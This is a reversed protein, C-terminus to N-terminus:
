KGRGVGLPLHLWCGGTTDDLCWAEAFIQLVVDVGAISFGLNKGDPFKFERQLNIEILNACYKKETKFLQNWRFRGTRQGDDLQDLTERITRGTRRGDPDVIQFESVIAGIEDDIDTEANM